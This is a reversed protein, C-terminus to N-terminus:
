YVQLYSKERRTPSSFYRSRLSSCVFLSITPCNAILSLKAFLYVTKHM